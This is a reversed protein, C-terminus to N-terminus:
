PTPQPRGLRNLVEELAAISAVVDANVPDQLACWREIAGLRTRGWDFSRVAAQRDALGDQRARLLQELADLDANPVATYSRRMMQGISAAERRRYESFVALFEGRDFAECIRHDLDRVAEALGNQHAGPMAEAAQRADILFGLMENFTTPAILDAEPYAAVIHDALPAFEGNYRIAIETQLYSPTDSRDGDLASMAEATPPALVRRFVDDTIDQLGPLTALVAPTTRDIELGAFAAAGAEQFVKAVLSSCFVGNTRIREAVAQPFVSAIAKRFSYTRGVQAQALGAARRAAPEDHCRLLRVNALDHSFCRYVSLTVVGVDIAEAFTPPSTCILAHDFDGATAARIAKAMIGGKGDDGYVSRTLLIDGPRLADVNPLWVFRGDYDQM